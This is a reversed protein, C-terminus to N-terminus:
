RQVDRILLELQLRKSECATTQQSIDQLEANKKEMLGSLKAIMTRLKRVSEGFLIANTMDTIRGGFDVSMSCIAPEFLEGHASVSRHGRKALMFASSSNRVLLTDSFLFASLKNYDSQVFDSLTGIVNVDDSPVHLKKEFRSVVDLPIIRLRPLKREKAYAAILIMSKIDYVVFAKMWESGAALIPREYSKDWKIVDHVLGVIGFKDKERMLEAIAIDENMAHKAVSAREEFKNALSEARLLLGAAGALEKELSAKAVTLQVARSLVDDLKTRETELSKEFQAIHNRAASIETELLNIASDNSNKKYNITKIKEELRATALEIQGNLSAMRTLRKEIMNRFDAYKAINDTVKEIETDVRVLRNKLD